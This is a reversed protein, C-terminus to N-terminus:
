QSWGMTPGSLAMWRANRGVPVLFRRKDPSRFDPRSQSQGCRTVKQSKVGDPPRHFLCPVHRLQCRVLCQHRRTWSGGSLSPQRATQMRWEWSLEGARSGQEQEHEEQQQQLVEEEQEEQEEEQQEQEEQEEEGAALAEFFLRQLASVAQAKARDPDSPGQRDQATERIPAAGEAPSSAARRLARVWAVPHIQPVMPFAPDEEEPLRGAAVARARAGCSHGLQSPVDHARSSAALCPRRRGAAPRPGSPARPVAVRPAARTAEAEEMQHLGSRQSSDCACTVADLPLYQDLMALLDWAAVEVKLLEKM